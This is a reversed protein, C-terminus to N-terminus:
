AVKAPPEKQPPTSIWTLRKEKDRPAKFLEVNFQKKVKNQVRLFAPKVDAMGAILEDFLTTNDKFVRFLPESEKTGKFRKVVITPTM